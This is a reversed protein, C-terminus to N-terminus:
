QVRACSEFESNVSLALGLWFLLTEPQNVTAVSYGDKLPPKGAPFFRVRLHVRMSNVLSRLLNGADRHELAGIGIGDVEIIEDGVFCGKGRDLPGGEKIESIIIPLGHEKGGQLIPPIQPLHLSM